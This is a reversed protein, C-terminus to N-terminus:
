KGIALSVKLMQTVTPMFIMIYMCFICWSNCSMCECKSTGNESWDTQDFLFLDKMNTHVFIM